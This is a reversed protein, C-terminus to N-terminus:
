LEGRAQTGDQDVKVSAAGYLANAESQPGICNVLRRGLPRTGHEPQRPKYGLTRSRM